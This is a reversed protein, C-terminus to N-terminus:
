LVRTQEYDINTVISSPILDVMLHVRGINTPNVVGHNVMNNMEYAYGPEM